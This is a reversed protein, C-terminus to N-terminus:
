QRTWDFEQGANLRSQFRHTDQVLLPQQDDLGLDRLNRAMEHNSNGVCLRINGKSRMQVGGRVNIITRLKKGDLESYTVLDMSPAPIGSGLSGSLMVILDRGNPDLVEGHFAQSDLHFPIKTVFKPYGFFERGGYWAIETTVPLNLIYHGLSRTNVNSYMGVWGGLPLSQHLPLAPIALGVENYPGISTDRYEYFVLGVCAKGRWFLGPKLDLGALKEAALEVETTFLALFMSVDYYLTPQEFEGYISDVTTLPVQFFPDSHLDSM